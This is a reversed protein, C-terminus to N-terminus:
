GRTGGDGSTGDTRSEDDSIADIAALAERMSRYFHERDLTGLLGYRDLLDRLRTRLEVFMIHIGAENLELDLRELMDAASVDIDTIAECQLVVWRPRHRRVHHRVQQRFIGANAFFLPAEWRYVVIRPRQTARRHRAVSHWGRQGPLEGLLEGHPWWSRQFFLVISLAIAAVIGELVGFFIVGATAVLSLVLASRRVRAYRGLVALDVLSLAASIVIAGLAAQPLDALVGPFFLLLVAVIAAGILGTLQSKAGAQEAVATRSSSSSVAFGQFFGVAVNATGVGIMEQNPDVEDGRRAAFSTSIAITDTLSVLTIGIAAILLPWVDGVETWPVSPDPLGEPLAGVTPVDLDFIATVVTAGVVAALIAPILRTVRPLVLLVALTALGVALATSNTEDVGTFFAEVEEVFGDADTSFGCLKPLQGVIITIALGNLYGVQVEKSLLDAVFGLKGLGLGIEILGVLIALMGALALAESPEATIVVLSAIAAFILPSVASDPGLVLVRSPGMLAYAVLCVITTYLGNVAPLGALEAYAMGQPVLITALVIGAVLDDRLWRRRYTRLAAVGPIFRGVGAPREDALDAEMM